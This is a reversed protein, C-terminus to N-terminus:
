EGYVVELIINDTTADHAKGEPDIWTGRGGIETVARMFPLLAYAKKRPITIWLLETQIRPLHVGTEEDGYLLAFLMMRVRKLLEDGKRSRKKKKILGKGKRPPSHM